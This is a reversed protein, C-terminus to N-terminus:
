VLNEEDVQSLGDRVIDAFRHTTKIISRASLREDDLVIRQYDFFLVWRDEIAQGVSARVMILTANFRNILELAQQRTGDALFLAFFTLTNGDTVIKVNLNRVKVSLTGDDEVISEMFAADIIERLQEGNLESLGFDM